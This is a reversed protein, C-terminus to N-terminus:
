FNEQEPPVGDVMISAAPGEPAATEPARPTRRPEGRATQALCLRAGIVGNAFIGNLSFKLYQAGRKKPFFAIVYGPTSTPLAKQVHTIVGQYGMWTVERNVAWM